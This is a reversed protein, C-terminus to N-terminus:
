YLSKAAAPNGPPASQAARRADAIARRSSEALFPVDGGAVILQFGCRMALAIVGPNGAVMVALKGHNRCANGVTLLDQELEDLPRAETMKRGLRLMVDDGGYFLADIGPEAAIAEAQRLADPTEIQAVLLTDHNATAAYQRGHRDIARRGGFSREGLPPFKAALVIARAQAPTNVLPVIVGSAGTDLTRGIRGAEHSPVRVLAPRQVLDCARVLALVDDEGMEGHQGDVWIWDWDAGIREISGPSAYMNALGFYPGGTKLNAGLLSM